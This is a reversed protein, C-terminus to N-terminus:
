SQTSCWHSVAEYQGRRVLDSNGATVKISNVFMEEFINNNVEEDSHVEEGGHNVNSM